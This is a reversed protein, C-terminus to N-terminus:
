CSPSVQSNIRSSSLSCSPCSRPLLLLFFQCENGQKAQERGRKNGQARKEAGIKANSQETLATNFRQPPSLLSLLWLSRVRHTCRILALLFPPDVLSLPRQSKSFFFSSFPASSRNRLIERGEEEGGGAVEDGGERKCAVKRVNTMTECTEAEYGVAGKFFYFLFFLSESRRLSAAGAPGKGKRKKQLQLLVPFSPM